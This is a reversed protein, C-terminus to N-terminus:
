LSSRAHKLSQPFFHATKREDLQHNDNCDDADEGGHGDRCEDLVDSLGLGNFFNKQADTMPM